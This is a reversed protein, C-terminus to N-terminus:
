LEKERKIKQHELADEHAPCSLLRVGCDLMNYVGLGCQWVDDKVGKNSCYRCNYCCKDPERIGM